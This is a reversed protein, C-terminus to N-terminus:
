ACDVKLAGQGKGNREQLEHEDNSLEQLEDDEGDEYSLRLPAGLNGVFTNTAFAISQLTSEDQEMHLNGARKLNLVLRNTLISVFSVSLSHSISEVFQPSYVSAIQFFVVSNVTAISKNSM